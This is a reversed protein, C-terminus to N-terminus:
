TYLHVIKKIIDSTSYGKVFPIRQVQGGGAKVVDAGIIQEEQWDGGKV